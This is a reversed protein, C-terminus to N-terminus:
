QSQWPTYSGGLNEVITQTNAILLEPYTDGETGPQAISDTMLEPQAIAVNAERALTEVLQPNISTEVFIAPVGSSQIEEVLAKIRTAGPRAETNLGELISAAPLNYADSYYSLADHTTILQRQSQPITTIQQKIWNHITRLQTQYEQVNQQYRDRQEPLLKALYTQVVAAMEAGYAANQWVHPDAVLQSHEDPHEEEHEAAGHEHSSGQLPQPVAVEAVAVKPASTTTAKILKILEPEFNYGSYLILQADAIAQRDKPTITYAHPDMGPQLLCTLDVTEAAVQRVMDCLITTTAVVGPRTAQPETNPDASPASSQCSSLWCTLLALGTVVRWSLKSPLCPKQNM